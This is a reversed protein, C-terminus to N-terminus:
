RELAVRQVVRRARWGRARALPQAVIVVDDHIAHRGGNTDRLPREDIATPDKPDCAEHGLVAMEVRGRELADRREDVGGRRTERLKRRDARVARLRLPIARARTP